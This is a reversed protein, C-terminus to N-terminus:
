EKRGESNRGPARPYTCLDLSSDYFMFGHRLILDRVLQSGAVWNSHLIYLDPFADPILGAKSDWIHKTKGTPYQMQDLMRMSMGQYSCADSGLRRGGRVGCIVDYFCHQEHISSHEALEVVHEFVRVTNVNSKALYFGSNIRRNGNAPEEHLANTQIVLDVGHMKMNPIPNRLWIIDTDTWLADYGMKLIGLVVRSKLKTLRRYANPGYAPDGFSTNHALPAENEWYTAIGRVYAFEYLKPDYAAVMFNTINLQRMNCVWNMMAQRYGYNLATVVVMGNVAVSEVVSRITLPMGFSHPGGKGHYKLPVHFTERIEHSVSGCKIIRSGEVFVPDTQAAVTSPSYECNCVGPRTRRVFCSGNPELCAALKWPAFLITGKQNQYTGANISLYINIFLEFKSMKGKSWFMGATASSSTHSILDYGHRVHIAVIAESADIVERRGSTITEHTFWNDYKGRGFIFPPMTPDYLPPGNTNWAWVDMGGYTHLVGHQMAHKKLAADFDPTGEKLHSPIEHIDYRASIVLFNHFRSVIRKLAKVFYPLLMIDGNVIVAISAKPQNAIHFMSNFIPVGLFTKDVKTYVNLGLDAAAQQYGPEQGLLTIRPTPELRKWSRIARLNIEKQQALFPKPAAFIEINFTKNRTSPPHSTDSRRFIQSITSHQLLPGTLIQRPKAQSIPALHLAM